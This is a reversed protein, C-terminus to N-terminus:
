NICNNLFKRVNKLNIIMIYHDIKNKFKLLNVNKEKLKNVCNAEMMFDISLVTVLNITSKKNIEISDSKNKILNFQNENFQLNNMQNSKNNMQNNGNNLHGDIKQNDIGKIQYGRLQNGIVKGKIQNDRFQNDISKNKTQNGTSHNGISKIQNDKLQITKNKTQYENDKNDIQNSYKISNIPKSNFINELLKIFQKSEFAFNLILIALLSYLDDIEYCNFNWLIEM